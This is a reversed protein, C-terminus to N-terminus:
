TNLTTASGFIHYFHIQPLEFDRGEMLYCVGFIMQGATRQKALTEQFHVRVTGRLAIIIMEGLREARM